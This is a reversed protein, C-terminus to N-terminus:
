VVYALAELPDAKWAFEWHGTGYTLPNYWQADSVWRMKEMQTLRLAHARVISDLRYDKGEEYPRWVYADGNERPMVLEHFPLEQQARGRAAAAATNAIQVIIDFFDNEPM